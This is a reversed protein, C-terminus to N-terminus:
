ILESIDDRKFIKECIDNFIHDGNQVLNLHLFRQQLWNVYIQSIHQQIEVEPLSIEMNALASKTLRSVTTGTHLASLRRFGNMSNFYWCLYGPSTMGKARITAIQSTTITMFESSQLYFNASLSSGRLPILIDQEQLAFKEDGRELKVSALSDVHEFRGSTLDGIQILRAQTEEDVKEVATKFPKGVSIDAIDQLKFMKYNM